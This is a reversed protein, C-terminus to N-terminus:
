RRKEREIQIELPSRQIRQSISCTYNSVVGLTAKVTEVSEEMSMDSNVSGQRTWAGMGESRMTYVCGVVWDDISKEKLFGVQSIQDTVTLVYLLGRVTMLIGRREICFRSNEAWLGSREAGNPFIFFVHPRQLDLFTKLANRHSWFLATVVIDPLGIRDLSTVSYLQYVRPCGEKAGVSLLHCNVWQIVEGRSVVVDHQSLRPDPDIPVPPPRNAFPDGERFAEHIDRSVRAWDVAYPNGNEDIMSPHTLANEIEELTKVM